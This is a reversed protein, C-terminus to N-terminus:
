SGFSELRSYADDQTDVVVGKQIEEQVKQQEVQLKAAAQIRQKRVRRKESAPAVLVSTHLRESDDHIM